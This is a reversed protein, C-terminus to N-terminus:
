NAITEIAKNILELKTNFGARNIQAVTEELAKVEETPLARESLVREILSNLEISAERLKPDFEEPEFRTTTPVIVKAIVPRLKVSTAM